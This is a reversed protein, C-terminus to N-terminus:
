EDEREVFLIVTLGRDKRIEHDLWFRHPALDHTTLCYKYEEHWYYGDGQYDYAVKVGLATLLRAEEETVEKVENIWSPKLSM